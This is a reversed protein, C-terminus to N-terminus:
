WISCRVRPRSALLTRGFGPLCPLWPWLAVRAPVCRSRLLTATAMPRCVPLRRKRRVLCVAVVDCTLHRRARQTSSM